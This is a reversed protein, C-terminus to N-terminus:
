MSGGFMGFGGDRPIYRMDPATTLKQVVGSKDFYVHMVSNWVGSQQYPYSWVELGPLSLFSTESPAGVIKLVDEKRASNVQIMSFKQDTLVQEYSIVRSDPGVRAMYTFQGAPGTKYELLRGNGDQYRHTPPGLKAMVEQETQGARVANPGLSSCGALTLFVGAIALRFFPQM